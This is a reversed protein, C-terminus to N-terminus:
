KEKLETEKADEPESVHQLILLWRGDKKIWMRRVKVWVTKVPKDSIARPPAKAEGTLDYYTASVRLRVDKEMRYFILRGAKAQAVVRAKNAAKEENGFAASFYDALMDTLAAIDRKEIAQSLREEAMELEGRMKPDVEGSAEEARAVHPMSMRIAAAVLLIVFWNRGLSM